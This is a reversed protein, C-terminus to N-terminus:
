RNWVVTFVAWAVSVLAMAGACMKGYGELLDVRDDIKSVKSCLGENGNGMIVSHLVAGNALITTIDAQIKDIKEDISTM